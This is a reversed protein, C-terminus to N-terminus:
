ELIDPNWYDNDGMREYAPNITRSLIGKKCEQICRMCNLCLMDGTDVRYHPDFRRNQYVDYICSIRKVCELCGLCGEAELSSYKPIAPFRPELKETPIHYKSSM